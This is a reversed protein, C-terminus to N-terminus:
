DALKETNFRGTKLELYRIAKDIINPDYRNFKKRYAKYYKEVPEVEQEL